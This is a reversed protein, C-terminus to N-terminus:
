LYYYYFFWMFPFPSVFRIVSFCWNTSRWHLCQPPNGAWGWPGWRGRNEIRDGKGLCVRETAIDGRFAGFGVSSGIQGARGVDEPSSDDGQGLSGVVGFVSLRWELGVFGLEHFSFRIAFLARAVVWTSLSSRDLM